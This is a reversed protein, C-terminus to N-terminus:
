PKEINATEYKPIGYGMIVTSHLFYTRRCCQDGSNGEITYVYTDDSSEVIGVHSGYGNGEWDFFIIDGPKPKYGRKQWQHRDQFWEIGTGVGAFKPIIGDKIYRV